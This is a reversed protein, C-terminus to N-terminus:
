VAVSLPDPEFSAENDLSIIEEDHSSYYRNMANVIEIGIRALSAIDGTSKASEIALLSYRTWAVPMGDFVLTGFIEPSVPSEDNWENAEAMRLATDFDKRILSRAFEVAFPYNDRSTAIGDALALAANGSILRYVDDAADSQYTELVFIAKGLQRIVQKARDRNRDANYSADCVYVACVVAGLLSIRTNSEGGQSALWECTDTAYQLATFLEIPADPWKQHFIPLVRRACRAAFAVKAWRPLQAIEIEHLPTGGQTQIFKSGNSWGTLRDMVGLIREELVESAGADRQAQLLRELADYLPTKNRGAAAWEIAVQDLANTEDSQWADAIRDDLSTM